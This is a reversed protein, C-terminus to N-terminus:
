SFYVPLDSRALLSNAVGLSTTISPQVVSEATAPGANLDNAPFTLNATSSNGDSM